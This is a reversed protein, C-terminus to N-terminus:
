RVLRMVKRVASTSVPGDSVERLAATLAAELQEDPERELDPAVMAVVRPYADQSGLVGLRCPDVRNLAAELRESAPLAALAERSRGDGRLLDVAFVFLLRVAALLVFGLFVLAAGFLDM